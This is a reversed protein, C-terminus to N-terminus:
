PLDPYTQHLAALIMSQVTTDREAAALKLTRHLDAPLDVTTRRGVVALHQRSSEALASVDTVATRVAARVLETVTTDEAAARTKLARRLGPPYVVTVRRPPQDDSPLAAARQFTDAARTAPTPVVPRRIISSRIQEATTSKKMNM